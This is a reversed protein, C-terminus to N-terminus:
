EPKALEVVLGLSADAISKLPNERCYKDVYASVANADTHRLHIGLGTGWNESASLWGLVWSLEHSHLADIGRHELWSGCSNIGAGYLQVAVKGQPPDAAQASTSIAASLFVAAVAPIRM